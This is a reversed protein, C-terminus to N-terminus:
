FQFQSLKFIQICAFCLFTAGVFRNFGKQVSGLYPNILKGLVIFCIFAGMTGIGAGASFTTLSLPETTLWGNQVFVNGWLLWFPYVLVNALSLIGGRRFSTSIKEELATKPRNKSLPTQWTKIGLVILIPISVVTLVTTLYPIQFLLQMCLLTLLIQVCEIVAAGLGFWFATRQRGELSLQLISLNLMGLPLAGMFSGTIGLWFISFITPSM